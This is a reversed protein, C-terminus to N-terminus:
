NAFLLIIALVSWTIVEVVIEDRTYKQQETKM